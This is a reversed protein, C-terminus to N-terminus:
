PKDLEKELKALRQSAKNLLAQGEETASIDAYDKELGKWRRMASLTKSKREYFEAVYAEKQALRLRSNALIV